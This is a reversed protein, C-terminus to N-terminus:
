GFDSVKAKPYIELLDSLFPTVPIGSVCKYKKLLTKLLERINFQYGNLHKQHQYLHVELWKEIIDNSQYM